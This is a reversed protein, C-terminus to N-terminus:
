KSDEKKKSALSELFNAGEIVPSKFEDLEDLNNLNDNNTWSNKLKELISFINNVETVYKQYDNM